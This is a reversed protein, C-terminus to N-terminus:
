AFRKADRAHRKPYYDTRLIAMRISDYFRSNRYLDDKFVGEHVYGAREYCRVAGKNDATVGLWIRHLNLRDFGYFTLLETIETGYGKGWYAREGILM